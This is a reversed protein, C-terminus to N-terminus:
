RAEATRRRVKSLSIEAVEKTFPHTATLLLEAAAATAAGVQCVSFTFLTKSRRHSYDTMRAHLIFHVCVRERACVLTFRMYMSVCVGDM